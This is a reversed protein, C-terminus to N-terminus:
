RKQLFFDSEHTIRNFYMQNAAGRFVFIMLFFYHPPSETINAQALNPPIYLNM